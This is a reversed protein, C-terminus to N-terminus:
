KKKTPTKPKKPWFSEISKLFNKNMEVDGDVHIWNEYPPKEGTKSALDVSYHLAPTNAAMPKELAKVVNKLTTTALLKSSTSIEIIIQGHVYSHIKNINPINEVLTKAIMQKAQGDLKENLYNNSQYSITIFRNNSKPFNLQAM